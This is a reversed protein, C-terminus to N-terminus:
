LKNLSKFEIVLTELIEQLQIKESDLAHIKGTFQNKESELLSKLYNKESEHNDTQQQLHDSKEKLDNIENEQELMLQDIEELFEKHQKDKELLIQKYKNELQEIEEQRSSEIKEIVGKINSTNYTKTLSKM